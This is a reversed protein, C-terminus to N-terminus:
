YMLFRSGCHGELEGDWDLNNLGRVTWDHPDWYLGYNEEYNQGGNAGTSKYKVVMYIRKMMPEFIVHLEYRGVVGHKTTTATGKYLWDEREMSYTVKATVKYQEEVRDVVIRPIEPYAWDEDQFTHDVEITREVVYKEDTYGVKYVLDVKDQSRYRMDNCIYLNTM